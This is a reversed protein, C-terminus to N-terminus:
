VNYLVEVLIMDEWKVVVRKVDDRADDADVVEDLDTM